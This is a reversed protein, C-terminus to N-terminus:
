ATAGLVASAALSALLLVLVAVTVVVARRERLVAFVWATAALAGIPVLTLALLGAAILADAGGAGILEVVTQDTSTPAATLVAWALGLGIAVVAIITGGRLIAAVVGWGSVETALPREPM